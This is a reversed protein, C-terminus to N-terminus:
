FSLHAKPYYVHFNPYCTSLSQALNHKAKKYVIDIYDQSQALNHKAKKYVIDIYDKSVLDEL